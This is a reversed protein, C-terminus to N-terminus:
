QLVHNEWYGDPYSPNVFCSYRTYGNRKDEKWHNYTADEDMFPKYGSHQILSILWKLLDRKTDEGPDGEIEIRCCIWPTKKAETRVGGYTLLEPYFVMGVKNKWDPNKSYPNLEFPTKIEVYGNDVLNCNPNRVLSATLDEIEFDLEERINVKSESLLDNIGLVYKRNEKIETNPAPQSEAEKTYKNLLEEASKLRNPNTPDACGEYRKGVIEALKKVPLDPKNIYTNYINKYSGNLLEDAVFDLQADVTKWNPKTKLKSVRSGGWQILGFYKSPSGAMPNFKSEQWMNGAIAAAVKPDFGREVLGKVIELGDESKDTAIVDENLFDGLSLINTEGETLVRGEKKKLGSLRKKKSDEISKYFEAYYEDWKTDKSFESKPVYVKDLMFIVFDKTLAIPYPVSSNGIPSYFDTIKEPSEFEYIETGVFVYRNDDIRLLYASNADGKKGVKGSFVEKTSPYRHAQKFISVVNTKDDIDMTFPMGGNDLTSVLKGEIILEQFKKLNKM